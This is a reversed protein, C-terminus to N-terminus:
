DADPACTGLMSFRGNKYSFIKTEGGEGWFVISDQKPMPCGSSKQLKLIKSSVDKRITGPYLAPYHQGPNESILHSSKIAMRDLLVVKVRYGNPKFMDDSKFFFYDVSGNGDFDGRGCEVGTRLDKKSIGIEELGSLEGSKLLCKGTGYGIPLEQDKEPNFEINLDAKEQASVSATLCVVFLLKLFSRM